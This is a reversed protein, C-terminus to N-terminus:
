RISHDDLFNFSTNENITLLFDDCNVFFLLKLVDTQRYNNYTHKM